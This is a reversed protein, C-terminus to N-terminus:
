GAPRVRVRRRSVCEDRAAVAQAATAPGRLREDRSAVAPLPPATDAGLAVTRVRAPGCAKRAQEAQKVHRAHVCYTERIACPRSAANIAPDALMVTPMM